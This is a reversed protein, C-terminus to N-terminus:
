ILRLFVIFNVTTQFRVDITKYYKSRKMNVGGPNYKYLVEDM